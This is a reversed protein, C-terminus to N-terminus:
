GQLGRNDQISIIWFYKLGKEGIRLLGRVSLKLVLDRDGLQAELDAVEQVM